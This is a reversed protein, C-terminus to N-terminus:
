QQTGRPPLMNMMRGEGMSSFMFRMSELRRVKQTEFAPILGHGNWVGEYTEVQITFADQAKPDDSISELGEAEEKTVGLRVWAEGAILVFEPELARCATKLLGFAIDKSPADSMPVPLPEIKGNDRRMGLVGLMPFAFGSQFARNAGSATGRLATKVDESLLDEREIKLPVRYKSPISDTKM